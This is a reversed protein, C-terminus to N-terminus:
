RGQWVPRRKESVLPTQLQGEATVHALLGPPTEGEGDGEGLGDGVEVGM